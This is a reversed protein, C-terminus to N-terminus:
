GGEQVIRGPGGGVRGVPRISATTETTSRAVLRRNSRKPEICARCGRVARTTTMKLQVARQDRRRSVCPRRTFCPLSRHRKFAVAIANRPIETM